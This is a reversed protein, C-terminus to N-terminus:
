FNEFHVYSLRLKERHRKRPVSLENDLRRSFRAAIKCIPATVVTSPTTLDDSTLLGSRWRLANPPTTNAKGDRGTWATLSLRTNVTNTRATWTPATAITTGGPAKTGHPATGGMMNTTTETKPASPWRMTIRWHTVRQVQSLISNECWDNLYRFALTWNMGVLIMISPKLDRWSFASFYEESLITSYCWQIYSVQGCKMTVQTAQLVWGTTTQTTQWLLRTTSQTLRTGKLTRWSLECHTTPRVQWDTSRTWGSGSSAAWTVSAKNTTPGTETSISPATSDKRSSLGAGEKQPKTASFTLPRITTRVSKSFAAPQSAPSLANQATIRCQPFLYWVMLIRPSNMTQVWKFSETWETALNSNQATKPSRFHFFFRHTFDSVFLAISVYYCSLMVNGTIVTVYYLLIEKDLICKAGDGTFGSQCERM